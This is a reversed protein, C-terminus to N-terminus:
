PPTSPSIRSTRTPRIRSGRSARGRAAISSSSPRSGARGADGPLAYEIAWYDYPGLTSMQYEGQKEGKLALNWPNYEMVSGSIGNKETFRADELQAETYVTSARFNHRLGLTHGVEHMTVNKLFIDVFKDVDPSDADLEGRAELLSLGFAAEETAADDYLAIQATPRSRERASQAQALAAFADNQAPLYESARPQARRPRQERRHRHRRRPDRRHASRRGVPRDRRVVDQRGDALAGVRPRIDSTDFDADDPQVEVRIADKYGIREFAKNWELIGEGSRSATASRSTATSGSCSRSSRSPCRRPRTRRRSAGATRM